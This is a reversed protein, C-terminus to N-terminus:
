RRIGLREILAKYQAESRRKLYALLSRRSGVLKMLGTKSAHDKKNTAFHKNLDNIRNTLLAIQVETSGTDHEHMKYADITNKKNEQSIM